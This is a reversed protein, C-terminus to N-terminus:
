EVLLRVVYGIVAATIFGTGICCTSYLKVKNPERNIKNLSFFVESVKNTKVEVRKTGAGVKTLDMLTGFRSSIGGVSLNWYKQEISDSSFLSVSYEGASIPYNLIPTFGISDGDLYVKLRTPNSNINLYGPKTFEPPYVSGTASLTVAIIFLLGAKVM